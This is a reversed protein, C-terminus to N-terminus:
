KVKKQWLSFDKNGWGKGEWIKAYGKSVWSTLFEPNLFKAKKTALFPGMVVLEPPDMEWNDLLQRESRESYTDWVLFAVNHVPKGGIASHPGPWCLWLTRKGRIRPSVDSVMNQIAQQLEAKAYLRAFASQSPLKKLPVFTVTYVPFVYFLTITLTALAIAKQPVWTIVQTRSLLLLLIPISIPAASAFHLSGTLLHGGILGIMMLCPLFVGVNVYLYKNLLIVFFLSFAMINIIALIIPYYGSIYKSSLDHRILNIFSNDFLSWISLIVLLMFFSEIFYYLSPSLDKGNNKTARMNHRYGNTSRIYFFIVFFLMLILSIILELLRRYPTVDTLIIRPFGKSAIQLLGGKGASPDSFMQLFTEAAGARLIFYFIGPLFGLLWGAIFAWLVQLHKKNNKSVVYLYFLALVSAVAITAGVNQKALMCIGAFFGAIGAQLTKDQQQYRLIFLVCLGGIATPAFNHAHALQTSLFSFSTALIVVAISLFRDAGLQKLILLGVILSFLWWLYLHVTYIFLSEGFVYFFGALTYNVFPPHTLIFDRFQVEGHLIRFAPEYTWGYDSFGAVWIWRLSLILFGLFLFTWPSYIISNFKECKYMDIGKPLYLM